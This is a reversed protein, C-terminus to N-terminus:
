LLYITEDNRRKVARAHRNSEANRHISDCARFTRLRLQFDIKHCIFHQKRWWAVYVKERKRDRERERERNEM